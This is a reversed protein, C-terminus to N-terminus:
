KYAFIPVQLILMVRFFIYIYNFRTLIQFRHPYYVVWTKGERIEVTRFIITIIFM